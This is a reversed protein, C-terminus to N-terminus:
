LVWNMITSCCCAVLMESILQINALTQWVIPVPVGIQWM